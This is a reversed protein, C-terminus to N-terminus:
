ALPLIRNRNTRNQNDKFVNKQSLNKCRGVGTELAFSYLNTNLTPVCRCMTILTNVALNILIHVATLAVSQKLLFDL